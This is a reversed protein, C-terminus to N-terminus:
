RHVHFAQYDANLRQARQFYEQAQNVIGNALYIMGAHAYLHADQWGYSLARQMHVLAEKFRGDRFLAWALADRTSPNDRQQIDLTAWHVAATGNFYADAYLTALHHYYQTDGSEAAQIFARLALDHWAKALDNRGLYLYLDGLTQFLAPRGTCVALRHYIRLAQEYRHRTALWEAWYDEALWYGSYANLAWRYHQEASDAQGRSLALYGRQLELWAYDRMQKASLNDAALQYTQDATAFDGTKSQLYALQALLAWDQKHSLAQQLTSEADAIRGQQLAVEVALGTLDPDYALDGHRVLYREAAAPQHLYSQWKASLFQLEDNDPHSSLSAHLQRAAQLGDLPRGSLWSLQVAAYTRRITQDEGATAATSIESYRLWDRQYATADFVGFFALYCALGALLSAATSIMLGCLWM